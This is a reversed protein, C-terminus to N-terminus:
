DDFFQSIALNLATDDAPTDQMEQTPTSHTSLAHVKPGLQADSQQLTITPSPEPLPEEPPLSLPPEIPEAEAPKAEASKAEASKAEASKAEASEARTPEAKTRNSKLQTIYDQQEKTPNYSPKGAPNRLELSM